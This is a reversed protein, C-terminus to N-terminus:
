YETAAQKFWKIGEEWGEQFTQWHDEIVPNRYQGNALRATDVEGPVFSMLTVQEFIERMEMKM